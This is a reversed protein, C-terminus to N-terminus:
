CLANGWNCKCSYIGYDDNFETFNDIADLFFKEKDPFSVASALNRLLIGLKRNWSIAREKGSVRIVGEAKPEYSYM